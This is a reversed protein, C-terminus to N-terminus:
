DRRRTVCGRLGPAMALRLRTTSSASVSTSSLLKIADEVESSPDSSPLSMISILLSSTRFTKVQNRSLYQCKAPPLYAAKSFWVPPRHFHVCACASPLSSTLFLLLGELLSASPRNQQPQHLYLHRHPYDM